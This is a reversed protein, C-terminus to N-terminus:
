IIYKTTYNIFSQGKASEFKIQNSHPIDQGVIPAWVVDQGFVFFRQQHNRKIEYKLDSAKRRDLCLIDLKLFDEDNIVFEVVAYDHQAKHWAWCFARHMLDGVYFGRGLEGGGKTIDIKGTSIEKAALSDTGHYQKMAISIILGWGVVIPNSPPQNSNNPHVHATSCITNPHTIVM